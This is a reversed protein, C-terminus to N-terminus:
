TRLNITKYIFLDSRGFRNNTGELARIVATERLM